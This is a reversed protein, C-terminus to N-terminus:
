KVHNNKGKLVQSWGASGKKMLIKIVLFDNGSLIIKFKFHPLHRLKTCKACTSYPQAMKPCTPQKPYLKMAYGGRFFNDPALCKWSPTIRLYAFWREFPWGGRRLKPFPQHLIGAFGLRGSATTWQSISRFCPNGTSIPVPIFRLYLVVKIYVGEHRFM